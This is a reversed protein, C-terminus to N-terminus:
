PTMLVAGETGYMRVMHPWSAGTRSVGTRLLLLVESSATSLLAHRAM